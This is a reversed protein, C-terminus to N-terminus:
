SAGAALKRLHRAYMTHLDACAEGAETGTALHESIAADALDAMRRLEARLEDVERTLREVEGQAAGWAARAMGEAIAAITPAMVREAVARVEDFQANPEFSPAAM